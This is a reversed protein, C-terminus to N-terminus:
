DIIHINVQIDKAYSFYYVSFMVIWGFVFLVVYLSQLVPLFGLCAILGLTFIISAFVAGAIGFPSRCDRKV